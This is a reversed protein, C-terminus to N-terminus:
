KTSKPPQVKTGNILHWMIANTSEKVEKVDTHVEDIKSVKREVRVVWAAIAGFVSLAAPLLVEPSM